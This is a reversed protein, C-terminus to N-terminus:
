SNQHIRLFIEVEEASLPDSFYSGQTEDCHYSRLAKLQSITEVGEALVSANIEKALAITSRVFVTNKHNDEQIHEIFTKDIKIRDIPIRKLDTARVPVTGFDDLAIKVGLKSLQHVMDILQENYIIINENLELELYYPELNIEQLTHSIFDVFNEQKIQQDSVNVAVRLPSLNKEQWAKIQLCAYKLVWEGIKIILDSKEAVPIFDDPLLLGRKPHQWRILAEVGAYTSTTLSFLPQYFLILEQNQIAQLLESILADKQTM